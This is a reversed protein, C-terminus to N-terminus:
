QPPSTAGVVASWASLDGSEFGDAFVDVSVISTREVATDDGPNLLPEATATLATTASVVDDGPQASVGVTLFATLSQSAGVPLTPMTWIGAFFDYSGATILVSSLNVGVPRELVESLELMSADSPGLNHVTATYSLNEFGSGAVVPDVSEVQTLVIDVQRAVTSNASAADDGPNILPENAQVVSAAASVVAGSAASPAVTLVATLTASAGPALSGLTWTTAGFTGQSPTISDVTVAAPLTLVESLVVSSASSPGLNTVTAVFSLNGIASGAVVPDTTAVHSVALDVQRGVSTSVAAADDFPNILPENAGTVAADSLIVDTGAAATGDVTLVVTLTESAGLALDDLTWTPATFSGTSPTIADITVGAPLTLFDRVTVGSASSPGLNRVTIVYSLNGAGSGAVVPDISESQTLQLDVQRGIATTESATDDDPNIRPQDVATVAAATTLTDGAAATPGVTLVASLTASAGAALSGVTWQPASYAGQSPTITDATVGAPLTPASELTIGTADSPGLNSVSTIHILNGPGSGATVPDVTEVITVRLDVQRVISTAASVGDDGTNLRPENSATVTLSTAVVDSGPQAGSGATLVATLTASAGAPLAGLTWTPASFSGTSPTITDLSVGSPLTLAQGLEVGSADSPGLNLVTAVYTLNGAGSGAVVPDISEALAVTLDIQRAVSTTLTAADDGTNLRPEASATVAVTSAIVDSGVAASSGATLVVTLTSSAGAALAGLTWTPATFSGQSPTIAQVVVGPPLVQTADLVVGSAASPGLNTVTAVYTLNGAGSGAVVPDLSEVQAVTLDIQRAISTTATTTDNEPNILLETAATVAVTSAIVDEGAAANSGATLVLTLTESAGAALDGLTWTPATFSGASPTITDVTVGAPVTAEASLTVGSADVASLNTVTALYTLNGAGSGAVVPDISPVLTVRLDVQQQVSTSEAASDDGPNLLPETAATVVATATIVDSGPAATADVTLVTTLTAEADAALDGLTWTPDTFTGASPTVTDVTVGAPLTLLSSLAIGSADSPGLNRVTAVYSLNGAGSGAAVPDTSESLTVLLDVQRVISTSETASDDAPNLLPESAATVGATASIADVGSVAAPAATLVATLTAEGGAALNGVAWAPATYSGQSPTITDVSVAAPPALVASLAVASADSPGLNRVTAVLTLNGAGSGAVVPDLSESWTVRLDIERTVSVSTSAADDGPNLLPQDVANLATDATIVDTGPVTDSAVTLVAALTASAGVALEGVTWTGAAFSGASPMITDVSVGSPLTLVQSLSVGSASSPGLNSVTAVLTLNGSGSGAVVPDTSASQEVKLDVELGVSTSESASDDGPNLLPEAASSVSVTSAIVDSGPATAASVTLVTTLTAEAGAALAGLSWLPAAFSGDSPTIADVSVGPPLTLAQQLDVESANSPGHNIVTAVYTLNGSGSGAVVPDASESVLVELDVQRVVSTSEGASDDVPNIVAEDAAAVTAAVTVVDTGGATSADVTLVLTLTESSGAPLAGLSWTPDTFTGTSPTVTDISVGAPLSPAITLAVGSADSPGQNSVTVTYSLNGAGSGAVVPDLSEGVSVVLDVERRVTTSLFATDTDAGFLPQDVDALSARSRVASGDPASPGVTLVVTLTEDASLLLEDLTWLPDSFSGTSPTIADVSVGSPLDLLQRIEIGTASTDGNFGNTATVEYSLNGAGSGAVVPDSTATQTIVLDVAPLDDYRFLHGRGADVGSADARLDDDFPAGVLVTLASLSVAAGFLDGDLGDDATLKTLLGWADMGGQDREFFYVAGAESGRDDDGPAAVAVTDVILSVAEGFSDGADGDAALLVAEQSWTNGNRFLYAKGTEVGGVRANPAGVALLSKTMAVSWGFADGAAADAAVLKQLEGWADLGGANRDFVYAAGSSEGDDDDLPAGVVTRDGFIGVSWGFLDDADGDTATLLAVQRWADAGGRNRGFVYAAGQGLDDGPAGVVVTDAFAAAASGFADGAVVGVPDLEAVLGWADIGGHHRGFLYATGADLGAEDHGPAGVVVWEGSVAVATGFGDGAVTDPAVLETMQDWDDIGGHNRVFVYAAGADLGSTGDHPAGVVAVDGAVSVAFGLEDGDGADAAAPTDILQWSSGTPEFVYAVGVESLLGFPITRSRDPAGVIVRDGHVAVAQGLRCNSCSSPGLKTVEGWADPGGQNRKFLYAAGSDSGAALTAFPAGIVIADEFIAVSAGFRDDEEGDAPVLKRQQGWANAGGENRKFVYAAGPPGNVVPGAEEAGVVVTEEWISVAVGFRSVRELDVFSLEAVEGWADLGGQNRAFVYAAGTGGGAESTGVVLTDGSVAVASGFRDGPATDAATLKAVLGWADAGGQNRGFVYVSGSLAGAADDLEAGVVILDGSIAVATGFRDGIEGDPATLTAFGGWGGQRAFLQVAGRDDDAHPVGVVLLDEGLAIASGYPEGFIPAEIERVQGWSEGDANREFVFVAGRGFGFGPAGVALNDGCVAVTEGFHDDDDFDEHGIIATLSVSKVLKSLEPWALSANQASLVEAAPAQAPASPESAAAGLVAAFLWLGAASALKSLCRWATRPRDKQTSKALTTAIM